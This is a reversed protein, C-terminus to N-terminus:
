TGIAVPDTREHLAVIQLPQGALDIAQEQLADRLRRRIPHREEGALSYRAIVLDAVQHVMSADPVAQRAAKIGLRELDEGTGGHKARQAVDVAIEGDCIFLIEARREHAPAEHAGILRTVDPRDVGVAPEPVDVPPGDLFAPFEDLDPRHQMSRRPLGPEHHQGATVAGAEVKRRFDTVPRGLRREIRM